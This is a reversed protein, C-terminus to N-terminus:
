ELITITDFVYQKLKRDYKFSYRIVDFYEIYNEYSVLMGNEDYLDFYNINQVVINKNVDYLSILNLNELIEEELDDEDDLIVEEEIYSDQNYVNVFYYDFYLYEKKQKYEKLEFIQSYDNELYIVNTYYMDIDYNYYLVNYSSYTDQNIKTLTRGFLLLSIEDVVEPSYFKMNDFKSFYKYCDVCKDYNYKPDNKNTLILNSAVIKNIEIDDLENISLSNNFELKNYLGEYVSSNTNLYTSILYMKDNDYKFYSNKKVFIILALALMVFFILLIILINRRKNM